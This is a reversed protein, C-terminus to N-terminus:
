WNCYVNLLLKIKNKLIVDMYLFTNFHWPLIYMCESLHTVSVISEVAYVSTTETRDYNISPITIFSLLSWSCVNIILPAKVRCLRKNEARENYKISWAWVNENAWQGIYAPSNKNLCPRPQFFHVFLSFLPNWLCEGGNVTTTHSLLKM